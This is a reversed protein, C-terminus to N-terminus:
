ISCKKSVSSICREAKKLCSSIKRPYQYTFREECTQRYEKARDKCKDFSEIYRDRSIAAREQCRSYNTKCRVRATTSSSSDRADVQCENYKSVCTPSLSDAKTKYRECRSRSKNYKDGCETWGDELKNQCTVKSQQCRALSDICNATRSLFGSYAQTVIPSIAWILFLVALLNILSKM